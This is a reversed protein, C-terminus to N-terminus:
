KLRGTYHIANKPCVMICAPCQHCTSPDIQAVKTVSIAKSPCVTECKKCGICLDSEVKTSFKAWRGTLSLLAGYLCIHNHFVWEEYRLTVLISVAMLLILIPVEQHFVKKSLVMTGIMLVLVIWPLYKSQLVKPVSKTRWNLKKSINGTAGMVTNMPCIYGCYFRGFITAGILSILFLGLWIFMNGKAIIFFFILLFALQILKRYKKMKHHVGLRM